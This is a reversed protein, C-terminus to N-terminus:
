AAAARRIGIKIKARSESIKEDMPSSRLRGTDWPMGGLFQM